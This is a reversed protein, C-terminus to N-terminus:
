LQIKAAGLQALNPAGSVNSLGGRRRRKSGNAFPLSCGDASLGRVSGSIDPQDDRVSSSDRRQAVIEASRVAAAARASTTAKAHRSPSGSGGTRVAISSIVTLSAGPKSSRPVRSVRVAVASSALPSVISTGITQRLEFSRTARNSRPPTSTASSVPVVAMM